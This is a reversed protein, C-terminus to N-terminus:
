KRQTRIYEVTALAAAREAESRNNIRTIVVSFEKASARMLIENDVANFVVVTQWPWARIRYIYFNDGEPCSIARSPTGLQSLLVSVEDSRVSELLDAYSSLRWVSLCWISVTSIATTLLVLRLRKQWMLLLASFAIPLGAVYIFEYFSIM